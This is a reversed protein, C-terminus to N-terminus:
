KEKLRPDDSAICKAMMEVSVDTQTAKRTAGKEWKMEADVQADIQADEKKSRKLAAASNDDRLRRCEAATDFSDRVDWHALPAERLIKEDGTKKNEFVPPSILYWGVLALAAAHRPNM